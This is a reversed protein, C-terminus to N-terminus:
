KGLRRVLSEVYEPGVYFTRGTWGINTTVFGGSYVKIGINQQGLLQYNVAIDVCVTGLNKDQLFEAVATSVVPVTTTGSSPATGHKQEAQIADGARYADGGFEIPLQWSAFAPITDGAFLDAFLAQITDYGGPIVRTGNSTYLVIERLDTYQLLQTGEAFEAYSQAEFANNGYVCYREEDSFKVAIAFLPNVNAITYVDVNTERLIETSANQGDVTIWKGSPFEDEMEMDSEKSDLGVIREGYDLGIVTYTGLYEGVAENCTGPSGFYRIGDYVLESYKEYNPADAWRKTETAKEKVPDGSKGDAKENKLLADAAVGIVAILILAAVAAAARRLVPRSPVQGEAEMVELVFRDDVDTFASFLDIEKM